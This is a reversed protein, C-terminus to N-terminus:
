TYRHCFFGVIVLNKHNFLFAYCEVCVDEYSNPKKEKKAKFFRANQKALSQM